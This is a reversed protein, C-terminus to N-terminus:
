KKNKGSEKEAKRYSTGRVRDGNGRKRNKKGIVLGSQIVGEGM